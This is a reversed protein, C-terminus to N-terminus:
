QHQFGEPHSAHAPDTRLYLPLLKDWSLAAYQDKNIFYQLHEYLGTVDPAPLSLWDLSRDKKDDPLYTCLSDPEDVYVPTNAPLSELFPEVFTDQISAQAPNLSEVDPYYCAYAKQQKGDLMIALGQEPFTQKSKESAIAAVSSQGTVGPAQQQWARWAGRAYYSLSDTSYIPIDWLQALNRATAVCLRTGTFSGPGRVCGIRDPRSLGAEALCQQILGPLQRFAERPARVSQGYARGQHFLGVVIWGNCTDLLLISKGNVM